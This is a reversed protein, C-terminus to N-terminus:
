ARSVTADSLRVRSLFGTDPDRYDGLELTGRAILPVNFPEVQLTRKLYIALIDDPWDASTECFPCVAMPRKTLVFFNSDAKLPPAMFGSVTLRTGERSQALPTFDGNKEYLDRLRISDSEAWVPGAPLTLAAAGLIFCRRDM